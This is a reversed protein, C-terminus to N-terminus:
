LRKRIDAIVDSALRGTIGDLEYSDLRRDLETKQEATLPVSIQDAAISALFEDYVTITVPDTTIEGCLDTVFLRYM